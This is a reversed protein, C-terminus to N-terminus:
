NVKLTYVFLKDFGRFQSAIYALRSQIKQIQGTHGIVGEDFRVLKAIIDVNIVQHM